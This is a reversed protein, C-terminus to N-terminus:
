ATPSQELYTLLGEPTATMARQGSRWGAPCVQGFEVIHRWMDILRLLEEVNRGLALDSASAHRVIGQVDILVTGRYAVPNGTFALSGTDTTHWEGGLMGYNAAITKSVDAVLPYTVGQIGGKDPTLACWARHTEETDTSCGVVVTQRIEFASLHAQLALLETPCVFTFDKPYFFLLVAQQGLYQKLSFNQVIKHGELLAPAEFTPAPRGILNHM